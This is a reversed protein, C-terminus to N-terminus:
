DPFSAPQPLDLDLGCRALQARILHLDWIHISHSDNTLNVLLGGDPSFCLHAAVDQSPDELRALDAGTGPDVLRIVGRGAEVAVMRSDPSFAFARGGLRPGAQWTRTSWLRCGFGAQLGRVLLWAGDPSFSTQVPLRVPLEAVVAKTHADHVELTGTGHVRSIWRGDPSVNSASERVYARAPLGLSGREQGNILDFLRVSEDMGVAVWRQDPSFACGTFENRGRGPMPRLTRYERAQAVEYVKLRTGDEQKGRGPGSLTAALYRDDRSFCLAGHEAQTVFRLQGSSPDWLRLRGNNGNSALLTGSHNFALRIGRTECELLHTREKRAVNWLQIRPDEGAVALREGDPHWAVTYVESQQGLDALVKGTALDRVRVVPRPANLAVAVQAGDPSLALDHPRSGSAPLRQVPALLGGSVRSLDYLLVQGDDLACVFWRGDASFDVAEQSVTGERKTDIVLVPTGAADETDPDALRWVKLVPGPNHNAV